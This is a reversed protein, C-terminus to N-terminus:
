TGLKKHYGIWKVGDETEAVFRNKSTTSWSPMIGDAWDFNAGVTPKVPFSANNTTFFICTNRLKTTGTADPLVLTGGGNIVAGKHITDLQLNINGGTITGVLATDPELDDKVQSPSLNTIVGSSNRKWYTNNVASPLGLNNIATTVETKRALTSHADTNTNHEEIAESPDWSIAQGEIIRSINTAAYDATNKVSDLQQKNVADNNTVGNAINKIVKNKADWKNDTDLNLTSQLNDLAEQMIYLVQKTTLNLNDENLSSTDNFVVLPSEVPTSRFIGVLDGITLSALIRIRGDEITYDNNISLQSTNIFVKIHAIDIYPFPISFIADGGTYLVINNAYTM